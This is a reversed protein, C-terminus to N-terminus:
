GALGLMKTFDRALGGLSDIANKTFRWKPHKRLSVEYDYLGMLGKPDRAVEQLEKLDIGDVDEELINARSQLFPTLVQRVTYGADIKDSLAPFLTKAQMNILNINSKLRDTNLTSDLATTALSKINYTVGNDFYANKLTTLTLGFNGRQLSSEPILGAQVLAIQETAYQKLYKNLIDKREQPSVGQTVYDIGGKTVPKTTRSAQLAKLENYFDNSLKKPIKTGFTTTFADGIEAFAEGKSSLSASPASKTSQFLIPSNQTTIETPVDNEATEITTPDQGRPPKEKPMKSDPYWAVKGDGDKDLYAGAV